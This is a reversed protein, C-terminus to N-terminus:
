DRGDEPLAKAAASFDGLQYYSDARGSQLEYEIEVRLATQELAESYLSVAPGYELDRRAKDAAECLVTATELTRPIAVM